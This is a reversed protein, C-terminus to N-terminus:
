HANNRLPRGVSSGLYFQSFAASLARGLGTAKLCKSEFSIANWFDGSRQVRFRDASHRPLLELGMAMEFHQARRLLFTVDSPGLGRAQVSARFQQYKSKKYKITIITEVLKVTPTEFIGTANDEPPDRM